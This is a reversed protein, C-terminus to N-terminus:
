RPQEQKPNTNTFKIQVGGNESEIVVIVREIKWNIGRRITKPTYIFDAEDTVFEAERAMHIIDDQTM